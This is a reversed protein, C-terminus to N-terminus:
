TGGEIHAVLNCVWVVRKLVRYLKESPKSPSATVKKLSYSHEELSSVLLLHRLFTPLGADSGLPLAFHQRGGSIYDHKAM